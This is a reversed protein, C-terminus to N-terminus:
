LSLKIQDIKWPDNDGFDDNYVDDDNGRHFLQDLKKAPRM